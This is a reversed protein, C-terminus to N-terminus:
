PDKQECPLSQALGGGDYLSGAVAHGVHRAHAGANGAARHQATVNISTTIGTYTADGSYTATIAHTGANLGAYAFTAVNGSLAVNNTLTVAEESFRATGTPSALPQQTTFKETTATSVCLSQPQEHGFEAPQFRGWASTRRVM